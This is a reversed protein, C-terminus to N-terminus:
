VFHQNLNYLLCKIRLLGKEKKLYIRLVFADDAIVHIIVNSKLMIADSKKWIMAGPISLIVMKRYERKLLSADIDEYRSFGFVAYYDSCNLLRVVEDESTIDSNSGSTSPAGSSRDSSIGPKAESFSANAEEGSLNGSQGQLGSAQESSKYPRRPQNM